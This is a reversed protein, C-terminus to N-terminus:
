FFTAWIWPMKVGLAELGEKLCWSVGLFGTIETKSRLIDWSVEVSPRWCFSTNGFKGGSSTPHESCGPTTPKNTSPKFPEFLVPNNIAVLSAFEFGPSVCFHSFLDFGLFNGTTFSPKQFVPPHVIMAFTVLDTSTWKYLNKQINGWCVPSIIWFSGIKNTAKKTQLKKIHTPFFLWSCYM